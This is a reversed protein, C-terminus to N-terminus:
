HLSLSVMRKTLPKLNRNYTHKWYYYCSWASRVALYRASYVIPHVAYVKMIRRFIRDAILGGRGTAWLYDHVLSAPEYVTVWLEVDGTTGDFSFEGNNLANCSEIILEQLDNPVDFVEFSAIIRDIERPEIHRIELMKEKQFHM